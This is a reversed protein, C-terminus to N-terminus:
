NSQESTVELTDGEATETTDGVELTDTKGLWWAMLANEMPLYMRFNNSGMMNVYLHLSFVIIVLYYQICYVANHSVVHLNPIGNLSSLTNVKNRKM